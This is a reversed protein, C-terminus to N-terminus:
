KSVVLKRKLEVGQYKLKLFYIGSSLHNGYVIRHRGGTMTRRLIRTSCRGDPLYLTIEVLGRKPLEFRIELNRTVPNPTVALISLRGVQGESVASPNQIWRFDIEDPNDTGLNYPPQSATHIHPAYSPPLGNNAREQDIYVKGYYDVAVPDKSMFIGNLVFQPPTWPGGDYVGFMADIINFVQLDRIEPSANLAAIYPDCHNGHMGYPNNITGYHNKLTLSVGASDPDHAKLVALSILYDCHETIIKTPYQTVGAVDMPHTFDYGVGPTDTAFCRVQDPNSGTYITYGANVLDNEARDWLIINNKKFPSGGVNMQALGNVITNAVEPHSAFQDYLCNLKIGIVSSQSIGPFISQWADGVNNISTLNKISVDMMIQVVAENINPGSTADVDTCMVVISKQDGAKLIRPVFAMGLSGLISRKIFERRSIEM